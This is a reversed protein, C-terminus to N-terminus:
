TWNFVMEGEERGLVEEEAVVECVKHSPRTCTPCVVLVPDTDYRTLLCTVGCVIFGRNMRTVRYKKKVEVELQKRKEVM